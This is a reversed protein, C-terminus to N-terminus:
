VTVVEIDPYLLAELAITTVGVVAVNVMSMVGVGGGGGGPSSGNDFNRWASSLNICSKSLDRPTVSREDDGAEAPSM